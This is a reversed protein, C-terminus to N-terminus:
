YTPLYCSYPNYYTYSYGCGYDYYAGLGSGFRSPGFRRDHGFRSRTGAFHSGAFGRGGGFGAGMHGGGFGAGMHGGGLGGGIHGGGGFGGGHGGGGGGGGGRAFADATLGGTLVAAMALVIMIKRTM